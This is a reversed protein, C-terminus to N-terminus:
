TGERIHQDYGIRPTTPRYRDRPIRKMTGKVRDCAIRPAILRYSGRLLRTTTAKVGGCGIRPV